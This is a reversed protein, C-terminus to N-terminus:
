YYKIIPSAKSSNESTKKIPINKKNLSTYDSKQTMDKSEKLKINKM